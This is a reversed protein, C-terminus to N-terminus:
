RIEESKASNIRYLARYIALTDGMNSHASLYRCLELTSVRFVPPYAQLTEALSRIIHHKLHTPFHFHVAKSPTLDEETRRQWSAIMARFRDIQQPNVLRILPTEADWLPTKRKKRHQAELLHLQQRLQNVVQQYQRVITQQERIQLRLQAAEM